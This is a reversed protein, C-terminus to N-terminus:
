GAANAAARARKAKRNNAVSAVVDTDVPDPEGEPKAPPITADDVAGMVVAGGEALTRMTAVIESALTGTSVVPQFDDGTLNLRAGVAQWAALRAAVDPHEAAHKKALAAMRVAIDNLQEQLGKPAKAGKSAAEARAADIAAVFDTATATAKRKRAEKVADRCAPIWVDRIEAVTAGYERSLVEVTTLCADGGMLLGRLHSREKVFTEWRSKIAALASPDVGVAQKGALWADRAKGADEAGLTAEFADWVDAGSFGASRILSGVENTGVRVTVADRAYERARLTARAVTDVASSNKSDQWAGDPASLTRSAQRHGARALVIASNARKADESAADQMEAASGATRLADDSALANQIAIRSAQSLTDDGALTSLASRTVNTRHVVPGTSNGHTPINLANLNMKSLGQESFAM